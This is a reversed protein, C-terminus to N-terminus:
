VMHWLWCSVDYLVIELVADYSVLSAIHIMHEQPPMAHGIVSEGLISPHCHKRGWQHDHCLLICSSIEFEPVLEQKM